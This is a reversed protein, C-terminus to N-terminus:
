LSLYSFVLNKLARRGAAEPDPRYQANFRSGRYLVLLEDRLCQAIEQRLFERADHIAAPDAAEMEGALETEGPLLCALARFAPDVEEDTLVGHLAEIFAPDAKPTEGRLRAGTMERLLESAYQQGAEWRNFPDGDHHMLFARQRRDLPLRLIVPASFNRNLSPVPEAPIAEFAFSQEADTLELVRTTAGGPDLPLDHGEPGILGVALPIHLPKKEPQGPTPPTSQRLTLTYREAAADYRGEAVVVPTGAQSYWLRFQELDRGNADAMAALFDDTTVAQGDHCHFYLELGKHFGMPGLLTRYMGIVEAGKRYVTPTYFNNIEIYREPRVPHATPSADEPFQGARLGRVDRIRKVPASREAASFLQDRFVTLGEKLSLQFWDRCTVRNGTWNHFYEHAIVSEIDVYDDDTQRAGKLGTWVSYSHEPIK